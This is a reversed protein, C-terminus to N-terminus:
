PQAGEHSHNVAPHDSDQGPEDMRASDHPAAYFSTPTDSIVATIGWAWRSAFGMADNPTYCLLHRRSASVEAAREPTLMRWDAHLSAASLEDALAQWEPPIADYLIGLALTPHRERSLRLAETSFSSVLLREPPLTAIAPPLAAEILLGASQGPSLKLELNLGMELEGLLELAEELTAMREGSFREEFWRGVDLRRAEDLTLTALPGQGDSCREVTADHWLVPTGDGLLQVDVEVWTIGAAHAARIAALTNEPAANSLGRHAIARPLNLPSKSAIPPSTMDM